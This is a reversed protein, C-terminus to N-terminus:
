RRRRTLLLALGGSLLLWLAAPEPIVTDTSAVTLLGTRRDKVASVPPRVIFERGRWVRARAAATARGQGGSPAM